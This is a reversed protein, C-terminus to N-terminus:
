YSQKIFSKKQRLKEEWQWVANVIKFFRRGASFVSVKDMIKNSSNHQSASTQDYTDALNQNLNGSM